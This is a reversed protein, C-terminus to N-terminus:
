RPVALGISAVICLRLRQDYANFMQAGGESSDLFMDVRCASYLVNISPPLYTTPLMGHCNCLPGEAGSNNVTSLM